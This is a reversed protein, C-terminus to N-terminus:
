TDGCRRLHEDDNPRRRSAHAKAARRDADGCLRALNPLYPPICSQSPARHWRCGSSPAVGAQRGCVCVLALTNFPERLNSVRLRFQEVTLVRPRRTRKSAGKITVLSIPNVQMPVDQKWMAYNWLAGLIGRIHVRSKPALPLSEIWMEVPRAQLDASGHNSLRGVESPHLRSAMVRVRRKHRTANAHVRRRYNPKIRQKGM